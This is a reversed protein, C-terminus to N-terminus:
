LTVSHSSPLTSSGVWGNSVWRRLNRGGSRVWWQGSSGAMAEELDCGGVVNLDSVREMILKGKM